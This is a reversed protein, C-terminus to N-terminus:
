LCVEVSLRKFYTLSLPAFIIEGMKGATDVIWETIDAIKGRVWYWGDLVAEGFEDSAERATNVVFATNSTVASAAVTSGNSPLKEYAKMTMQLCGLASDLTKTDKQVDASFLAEGKETKMAALDKGSKLSQIKKALLAMPKAAPDYVVEQFDLIDGDATKVSEVRFVQSGLTDSPIIFDLSGDVDTDYWQAVRTLLINRGNLIISLTSSASLYVAGNNLPVNSAQKAKLTVTYSRVETAKSASPAHFPTQRWLGVDATHELLMLNGSSDNSILMQRTSGGTLADARTVLPAFATSHKAPLLLSSVASAAISERKTRTYGLEDKSTRFWITLDSKDQAVHLQRIHKFMDDELVLKGPQDKSTSQVVNLIRIGDEAAILLSTYGSGDLV